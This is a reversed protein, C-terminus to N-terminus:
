GGTLAQGEPPMTMQVQRCARLRAATRGLFLGSLTASVLLTGLHWAPNADLAPTMASAVGTVYRFVLVIVIQAFSLWEGRLWLRGDPLRRTAGRRELPWGAATGAVLGLLTAALAASDDGIVRSIALLTVASPLILLRWLPVTSDRTRQLGLLLLLAYLV